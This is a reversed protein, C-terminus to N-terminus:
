DTSIIAQQIKSVVFDLGKDWNAGVRDVLIPCYEYIEKKEVGAWIPLVLNKTEIIERTFITNFETKTWGSNNLFNPSLILVCKKCEKLGKEISERLSDGLKLSYEDYWVSCLRNQLENAIKSAILDKDRSDHSIFALPKETKNRENSYNLDRFHIYLNDKKVATKLESFRVENVVGEYYFFVKRSFNLDESSTEEEGPSKTNVLVNKTLLIVDDLKQLLMYFIDTENEIQPVYFSIFTVNADFDLHAKAIIKVDNSAGSKSKIAWETQTSLLRSFDKLYYENLTAM